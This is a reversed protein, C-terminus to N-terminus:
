KPNKGVRKIEAAIFAKEAKVNECTTEAEKAYPYVPASKQNDAPQPEHNNQEKQSDENLMNWLFMRDFDKKWNEAM